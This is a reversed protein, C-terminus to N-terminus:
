IKKLLSDYLMDFQQKTKSDLSSTIAMYLARKDAPTYNEKKLTTNYFEGIIKFAEMNSKNRISKGVEIIERKTSESLGDFEKKGLIEKLNIDSM